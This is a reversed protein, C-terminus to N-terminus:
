PLDPEPDSRSAEGSSRLLGYQVRRVEPRACLLALYVSVPNADAAVRETVILESKPGNPGAMSFRALNHAREPHEGGAGSELAPALAPKAPPGDYRTLSADDEPM